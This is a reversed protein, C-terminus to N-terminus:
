LNKMAEEFNENIIGRALKRGEKSGETAEKFDIKNFRMLKRAVYNQCGTFYRMSKKKAEMSLKNLSLLSQKLLEFRDEPSKGKSSTKQTQINEIEDEISHIMGKLAELGEKCKLLEKSM